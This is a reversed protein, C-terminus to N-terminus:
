AQNLLDSYLNKIVRLAEVSGGGNEDSYDLAPIVDNMSDLIMRIRSAKADEAPPSFHDRYVTELFRLQQQCTAERAAFAEGAAALIRGGEDEGAGSAIERMAALLEGMGLMEKRIADMRDLLSEVTLAGGAAGSPKQDAAVSVHAAAANDQMRNEMESDETQDPPRTLCVTREDLWRARGKKVLGDARKPWTSEYVTGNEDVVIINKEIPTM